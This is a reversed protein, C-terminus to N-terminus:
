KSVSDDEVVRKSIFKQEEDYVALIEKARERALMKNPGYFYQVATQVGGAILSSCAWYFGVGAPVTFGIILSIIPMTLMMGSMSPADPNLRKQMKLSIVSTLMQAAFAM